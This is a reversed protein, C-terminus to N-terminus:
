QKTFVLNRVRGSNMTLGTITGQTDRTFHVQFYGGLNFLDPRLYTLSWDPHRNHHRVLKGDKVILEYSTDLEPSYYTGSFEQLAALDPLSYDYAEMRTNEGDPETFVLSKQGNEAMFEVRAADTDLVKFRTPGIPALGSESGGARDYVLVGDKLYVRRYTNQSTLWYYGEFPKLADEKLSIVPEDDPVGAAEPEALEGELLVDVVQLARGQPNSAAYNSVVAVAFDQDPFRGLYSRYGADSGGHQIQNLGKYPTVFQGYGGGFTEGSKLVALTNMQDVIARTEPDPPHNLHSAWRGLDEATTFLSTAGANAFSLVSKKLVGEDRYYSYARNPVIKEHDDYFLTHAMGLPTFIRERTFEAFSKGSVRAVTEALLTFGTNCYAYETGPEFNLAQQRSVLKLIHEKTIVDDLRWGAMALLAWQDRLGSTHTALHRLTIPTGFDPVETVYKRIPDDLSLKGEAQLLLIAYVTFQKSVSAVHFITEGPSVPIGYELNASGYGKSFALEGNRIVAVAAGPQDPADFEKFISDIASVQEPTVGQASGEQAMFLMGGILTSTMLQKLKQMIYEKHYPSELSLKKPKLGHPMPHM